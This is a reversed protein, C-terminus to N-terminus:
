RWGGAYAVVIKSDGDDTAEHCQGVAQVASICSVTVVLFLLRAAVRSSGVEVASLCDSVPCLLPLVGPGTLGVFCLSDHQLPSATTGGDRSGALNDGGGGAFGLWQLGLGSSGM